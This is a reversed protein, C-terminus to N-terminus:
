LVFHRMLSSDEKNNKLVHVNVQVYHGHKHRHERMRQTIKTDKNEEKQEGM